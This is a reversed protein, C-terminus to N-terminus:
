RWYENLKMYPNNVLATETIPWTWAGRLFASQSIPNSCYESNLIRRTRVLDYFAHGEGQLEKCREWFIADKLDTGGLGNYLTAEARNRIMNLLQKALEEGTGGTLEANAEAELLIADAYRFVILNGDFAIGSGTNGKFKLFEATSNENYINQDFWLEKRKDVEGIPYYKEIYKNLWYVYAQSYQPQRLVNDNFYQYGLGRVEGYNVNQTFEFLGEQSGGRFLQRFESVTLLRYAGNNTERLEKGLRATEQYYKEKNADDFGANWMNMHMMLAYMAGRTPRVARMKPDTYSWPLYDKYEDVEKICSNLVDVFNSRGIIGSFYPDTYYPVDGFLRVMIFYMFNRVFVAEGMYRKKDTEDLIGADLNEVADILVGCSQIVKFYAGWEPIQNFRFFSNWYTERMLSKLDNTVLYNYYVRNFGSRSFNTERYIGTRFEAALFFSNDLLIDAMEAYLNNTFKEVDERTQWFSAGSEKDPSETDLFKECSPLTGLLFIM